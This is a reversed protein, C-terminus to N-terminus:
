LNGFATKKTFMTGTPNLPSCLALLVAGKLHPELDAATPLFNNEESTEVEIKQAETLFLM